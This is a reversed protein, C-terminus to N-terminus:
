QSTIRRKCTRKSTTKKEEGEDVVQSQPSIVARDPTRFYVISVLGKNKLAKKWFYLWDSRKDSNRQAYTMRYDCCVVLLIRGETEQAFDTRSDNVYDNAVKFGNIEEHLPPKQLARLQSLM